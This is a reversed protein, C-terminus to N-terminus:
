KASLRGRTADPALEAAFPVAQQAATSLVGILFSALVLVM